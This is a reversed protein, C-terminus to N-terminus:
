GTLTCFTDSCHVIPQEPHQADSITFSCSLDIPGLDVRPNPRQAVKVLATISDFGISGNAQEKAEEILNSSLGQCKLLQIAQKSIREKSLTQSSSSSRECQVSKASKLPVSSPGAVVTQSRRYLRRREQITFESIIKAKRAPGSKIKPVDPCSYSGGQNRQGSPVLGSSASAIPRRSLCKQLQLSHYAAIQNEYTINDAISATPTSSQDAVNMVTDEEAKIPWTSPGAERSPSSTAWSPILNSNVNSKGALSWDNSSMSHAIDDLSSPLM